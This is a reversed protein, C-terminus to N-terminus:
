KLFVNASQIQSSPIPTGATPPGSPGTGTPHVHGDFLTKMKDGLVAPVSGSEGNLYIKGDAKIFVVTGAKGQLTVSGDKELLLFSSDDGNTWTLKVQESGETDDFMLVHGAPTCFGRRKGYNTSTFDEPIPRPIPSGEGSSEGGWFRKGRWRIVPNWISAAKPTIDTPARVIIEIEVLEDIDPVIFFGWEYVPEIWTSITKKNSGTWDPCVVEIRGRKEPDNNNVVRAVYRETSTIM